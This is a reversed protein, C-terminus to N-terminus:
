TSPPCRRSELWRLRIEYTRFYNKKRKKIIKVNKLLLKMKNLNPNTTSTLSYHTEGSIQRTELDLILYVKAKILFIKEM